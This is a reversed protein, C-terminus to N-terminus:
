ANAPNKPTVSDMATELLATSLTSKPAANPVAFAPTPMAPMACRFGPSIIFDSIGTTMAPMRPTYPIIMETSITLFPLAPSVCDVDVVVGVELAVRM